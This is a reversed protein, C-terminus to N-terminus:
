FINVEPTLTVGFREAVERQVHRSLALVEAGTATGDRNVLVLPQREYVSAGGVSFGKLGSRDILWAASLKVGGEVAYAPMDPFRRALAEAQEASVVPNIFFSGASGAEKPEPLKSQRMAIVARRLAQPGVTDVSLGEAEVHRRLAAYSLDPVFRKNLRFCVYTVVLEGRRAAKFISSRYAYRCDARPISLERGTSVEVAEVAEICASVEAGYAGINQVAAAGVEGPIHSLNELGYRGCEVSRAVFDDFVEAAGVRVSVTDAAEAVVEIGRIASHLVRGDYDKTFLLNSGAGIHLFPEGLLQRLEDVNDYEAFFRAKAEIGFTNHPRLSYNEFIKM